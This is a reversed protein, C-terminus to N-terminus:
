IRQSDPILFLRIINFTFNDKVHNTLDSPHARLIKKNMVTNKM